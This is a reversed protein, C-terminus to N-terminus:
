GQAHIANIAAEADNRLIPDRAAAELGPLSAKTGIVQLIKCAERRAMLDPNTLYRDVEPEAMPGMTELATVASDRDFVNTLQQAVPVVARPDKLRGLAEIVAGHNPGPSRLATLLAPVNERTGWVALVKAADDRTFTDQDNLLLEMEQNVEQRHAEEPVSHMLYELGSRRAFLNASKVRALAENIDAPPKLSDFVQAIPKTVQRFVYYIGGCAALGLILVVGGLILFIKLVTSATKDAQTAAQRRRAAEEEEDDEDRRRAPRSRVPRATPEPEVEELKLEEPEAATAAAPGGVVFPEHCERCRVKKGRLADNLNFATGCHPCAAQISM